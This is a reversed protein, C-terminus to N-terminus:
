APRAQGATDGRTRSIWDRMMTPMKEAIRAPESVPYVGRVKNGLRWYPPNVSEFTEAYRVNECGPVGLPLARYRWLDWAADDSEVMVNGVTGWGNRGLKGATSLEDLLDQLLDVRAICWAVMFCTHRRRYNWYYNRFPGTGESVVKARMQVVGSDVADFLAGAGGPRTMSSWVPDGVSQEVLMSAQWVPESTSTDRALVGSLDECAQWPSPHGARDLQQCQCWALLADLHRPDDSGVLDSHLDVVVRVPRYVETM